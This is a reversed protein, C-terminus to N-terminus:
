DYRYLPKLLGNRWLLAIDNEMVALEDETLRGGEGRFVEGVRDTLEAWGLPEATLLDLMAMSAPARITASLPGDVQSFVQEGTFDGPNDRAVLCKWVVQASLVNCPGPKLYRGFMAHRYSGYTDDYADALDARRQPDAPLTDDATAFYWAFSIGYGALVGAVEGTRVPGYHPNFVEHYFVPDQQSATLDMAARQLGTGAGDDLRTALEALRARAAPVAEDPALQELGARLVGHLGMRLELVRGAPYALTAVGGPRLCRGILELARHRVAPPTVQLVGINLILDFQGLDSVDVDLLDACLVRARDGFGALRERAIRAPGPSIDVGVLRGSVQEAIRALQAGTGCGLDLVDAPRGLEGFLAAQGFVREVDLYAFAETDYIVASYDSALVENFAKLEDM